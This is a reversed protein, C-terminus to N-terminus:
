QQVPARQVMKNSQCYAIELRPPAAKAVLIPAAQQRLWLDLLEFGLGHDFRLGAQMGAIWMIRANRRGLGDLHVEVQEGVNLPPGTLAIRLGRLSIDITRYRLLRGAIRLQVPLDIPLRVSEAGTRARRCAHILAEPDISRDLRITVRQGAMQTAWGPLKHGGRASITVQMSPVLPLATRITMEQASLRHIVCLARMGVAEVSGIHLLSLFHDVAM